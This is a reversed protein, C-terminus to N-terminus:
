SYRSSRSMRCELDKHLMVVVHELSAILCNHDNRRLLSDVELLGLTETELLVFGFLGLNGVEM